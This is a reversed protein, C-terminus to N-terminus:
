RRPILAVVKRLRAWHSGKWFVKSCSPCRYYVRHRRAAGTPVEGFAARRAISELEVNCVACRSPGHRLPISSEGARAVLESLRAADSRGTLFLVKLGRSEAHAYLGRDSTIIVRGERRAASEVESDPGERFYTVDLGIIRMKRSLSGLMADAIFKSREGDEPPLRSRPPM